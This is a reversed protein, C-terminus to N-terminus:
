TATDIVDYFHWRRVNSSRGETREPHDYLLIAQDNAHHEVLFLASGIAHPKTGLPAVLISKDEKDNKRMECLLRYAALVSSAAAYQVQDGTTLHAVNNAISDIEWGSEFAPVGFVLHKKWHQLVEEQELAQGLRAGEYGLFFVAQGPPTESLNTMFRHIGLYRRNKSLVFDRHDCLRDLIGRRYEVPEIYLLRIRRVRAETAASLAYLIESYSLSTAEILISNVGSFIGRFRPFSSKDDNLFIESGIPNFLMKFVTQSYKSAFSAAVTSRTDVALSSGVVALDFPKGDLSPAESNDHTHTTVHFRPVM